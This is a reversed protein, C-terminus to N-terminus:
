IGKKITYVFIEKEYKHASNIMHLTGKSKGDWIALLADAYKAMELNRLYGAKKGEKDWDPIFRKIPVNYKRAFAEGSRDIGRAGGSIIEEINEIKYGSQDFAANVEQEANEIERSGAIILKIKKIDSM